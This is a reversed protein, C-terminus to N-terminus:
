AGRARVTYIIGTGWDCVSRDRGSVLALPNHLGKLWLSTTGTFGTGRPTLAVARGERHEVRQGAGRDGGRPRASRHPDGGLRGRRPSRPGGAAAAGRRLRRRDPRLVGPLALGHGPRHRGALRRTDPRRPRGAPQDNRLPQEHRPLLGAGVPARIRSAYIRLDSGDSRFSAISGAYRSKPRCHDCNATIGMVFLGDPALVLGNNEGGDLLGRIVTRRQLFRTGTFDGYVTVRGVSAVYLRGRYWALGLPDDLGAIM